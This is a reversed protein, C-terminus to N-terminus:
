VLQTGPRDRNVKPDFIWLERGTEAELAILRSRPTTVYMVGDVVLPTCEFATSEPYKAEDAFERTHYIWAARLRTVNSRDIQTLPSHKSGGPDNGYHRWDQAIVLAPALLLFLCAAPRRMALIIRSSLIIAGICQPPRFSLM